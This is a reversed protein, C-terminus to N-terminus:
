REELGPDRRRNKLFAQEGAAGDPALGCDVATLTLRRVTARSLWALVTLDRWNIQM